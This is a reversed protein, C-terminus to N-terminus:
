DDIVVVAEGRGKFGGAADDKLGAVAFREFYGDAIRICYSGYWHVGLLESSTM